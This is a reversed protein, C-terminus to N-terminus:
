LIFQNTDSKSHIKQNKIVKLNNCDKKEVTFVVLVVVGMVVAVSIPTM